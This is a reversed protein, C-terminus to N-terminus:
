TKCGRETGDNLLGTESIGSDKITKRIAKELKTSDFQSKVKGKINFPLLGKKVGFVTEALSTYAIICQDIDMELRGLM